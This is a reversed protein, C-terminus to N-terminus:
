LEEISVPGAQMKVTEGPSNIGVHAFMIGGLGYGKFGWNGTDTWHLTWDPDDWDPPDMGLPYFRGRVQANDLETDAWYPFCSGFDAWSGPGGSIVDAGAQTYQLHNADLRSVLGVFTGLPAPLIVDVTGSRYARDADAEHVVLTVVNGTRSSALVEGGASLRLGPITGGQLGLLTLTDGGVLGTWVATNVIWPVGFLINSWVMYTTYQNTDPDIHAGMLNGHQGVMLGGDGNHWIERVAMSPASLETLLYGHRENGETGSVRTFQGRRGGPAVVTQRTNVNRAPSSPPLTLPVELFRAWDTEDWGVYARRRNSLQNLAFSVMRDVRANINLELHTGPMAEAEAGVLEAFAIVEDPDILGDNEAYWFKLRHGFPRIRDVNRWPDSADLGALWAGHGGWSADIAAQLSPNDNYFQEFHVIPGVLNMGRVRGPNQWVWRLALTGMSIAHVFMKDTRVGGAAALKFYDLADDIHGGPDVIAPAGWGSQGGLEPVMVPHGAAAYATFLPQWDSSQMTAPDGQYGHCFLVPTQGSSNHLRGVYLSQQEGAVYSDPTFRSWSTDGLPPVISM